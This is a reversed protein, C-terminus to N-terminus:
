YGYDIGYLWPQYDPVIATPEDTYRTAVETLRGLNQAFAAVALQYANADRSKRFGLATAWEIPLDEWGVPVDLTAAADSNTTVALDDPMAYYFVKLEGPTSPTPCLEISLPNASVMTYYEPTGQGISQNIGWVIDMANIDRYELRYISGSTDPHYEVRYVQIADTPATYFQDGALVVVTDSTRKWFSRRAVERVGDNLWSRIQSDTYFGPTEEALRARVEEIARAQTITM